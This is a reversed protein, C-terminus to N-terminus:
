CLGLRALRLPHSTNGLAYNNFRREYTKRSRRNTNPTVAGSIIFLSSGPQDEGFTSPGPINMSWCHVYALAIGLFKRRIQKFIRSYATLHPILQCLVPKLHSVPQGPQSINDMPIPDRGSIYPTTAFHNPTSETLTSIWSSCASLTSQDSAISFFM